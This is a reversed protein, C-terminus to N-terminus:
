PVRRHGGLEPQPQAAVHIVLTDLPQHAFAAQL